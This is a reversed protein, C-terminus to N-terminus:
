RVRASRGYCRPAPACLFAARSPPLLPLGVPCEAPTDPFFPMPVSLTTELPYSIHQIPFAKGAGGCGQSTCGRMRMWLRQMAFIYSRNPFDGFGSERYPISHALNYAVRSAKKSVGCQLEIEEAKLFHVLDKKCLFAGDREQRRKPMSMLAFTSSMKGQTM